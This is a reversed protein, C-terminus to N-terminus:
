LLTVDSSQSLLRPDPDRVCECMARTLFIGRGECALPCSPPGAPRPSLAHHKQEKPLIQLLKQLIRGKLPAESSPLSRSLLLLTPVNTLEPLWSFM